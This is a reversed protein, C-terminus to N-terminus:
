APSPRWERALGTRLVAWGPSTSTATVTAADLEDSWLVQEVVAYLGPQPQDSGPLVLVGTSVLDGVRPVGVDRGSCRRRHVSQGGSDLDTVVLKITVVM